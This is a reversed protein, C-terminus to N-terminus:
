DKILEFDPYRRQAIALSSTTLVCKGGVNTCRYNGINPNRAITGRTKKKLVKAEKVISPENEKRGSM